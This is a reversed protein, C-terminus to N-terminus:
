PLAGAPAPMMILINVMHFVEYFSGAFCWNGKTCLLGERGRLVHLVSSVLARSPRRHHQRGSSPCQAVWPQSVPEAGTARWGPFTRPSHKEAAAATNVPERAGHVLPTVWSFSAQLGSVSWEPECSPSGHPGRPASPDPPPQQNSSLTLSLHVSSTGLTQPAPVGRSPIHGKACTGKVNPLLGLSSTRSVSM